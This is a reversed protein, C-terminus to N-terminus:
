LSHTSQDVFSALLRLLKSSAIVDLYNFFSLIVTPSNWIFLGIEHFLFISTCYRYVLLFQKLLEQLAFRQSQVKKHFLFNSTYYHHVLLLTLDQYKMNQRM